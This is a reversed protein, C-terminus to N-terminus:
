GCKAGAGIARILKTPSQERKGNRRRLFQDMYIKVLEEEAIRLLIMRTYADLTNM